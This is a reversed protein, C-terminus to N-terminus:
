KGGASAQLQEERPIVCRYGAAAIERLTLEICTANFQPDRAVQHGEHLLIIAGPRLQKRITAAVRVPDRRITDFARISWGILLLGRSRLVPHVFPNTLGAPSRFFRAPREPTSRLTRACADIERAITKPAACWFTGSPHSFTHNAVLHGRTLIKTLLHPYEEVSEGIVFFTARAGHEHLSDLIQLTHAPSPGDDITLWVERTGTEFCRVVPGWWGCNPALTAYLLFLHSVFIPALAAIIGFQYLLVAAIPAIAALVLLIIRM